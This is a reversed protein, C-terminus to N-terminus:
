KITKIGSGSKLADLLMRTRSETDDQLTSSISQIPTKKSTKSKTIKDVLKKTAERAGYEAGQQIGKTIGELAKQGIAKATGSTAAKGISSIVDGFISGGTSPCTGSRRRANAFHARQKILM